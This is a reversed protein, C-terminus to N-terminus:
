HSKNEGDFDGLWDFMVNKNDGVCAVQVAHELKQSHMTGIDYGQALLWGLFMPTYSSDPVQMWVALTGVADLKVSDEGICVDLLPAVEKVFENVLGVLEDEEIM